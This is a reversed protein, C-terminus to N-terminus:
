PKKKQWNKLERKSMEQIIISEPKECTYEKNMTLMKANEERTYFVLPVFAWYSKVDTGDSYKKDFKQEFNKSCLNM